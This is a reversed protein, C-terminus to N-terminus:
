RFSLPNFGQDETRLSTRRSRNMPLLHDESRGDPFDVTRLIMMVPKSGSSHMNRNGVKRGKVVEPESNGRGPKTEGSPSVDEGKANAENTLSGERNLGTFKTPLPHPNPQKVNRRRRLRKQHPLQFLYKSIRPVVTRSLSRRVSCQFSSNAALRSASLRVDVM